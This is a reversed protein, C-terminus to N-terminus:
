DVTYKMFSQDSVIEFTLRNDIMFDQIFRGKVECHGKKKYKVCLEINEDLTLYRAEGSVKNHCVQLDTYFRRIESTSTYFEGKVGYNSIKLNIKMLCDYQEPFDSEYAPGLLSKLRFEIFGNDGKIDFGEM